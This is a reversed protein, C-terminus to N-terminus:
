MKDSLYNAEWGLSLGILLVARLVVNKGPSYTVPKSVIFGNWFNPEKPKVYLLTEIQHYWVVLCHLIRVTQSLTNPQPTRISAVGIGSTNKSQSVQISFNQGRLGPYSWHQSSGSGDSRDPIEQLGYLILILTAQHSCSQSASTLAITELDPDPDPSGLSCNLVFFLLCWVGLSGRSECFWIRQSKPGPFISILFKKPSESRRPRYILTQFGRSQLCPSQSSAHRNWIM